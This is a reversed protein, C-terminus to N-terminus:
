KVFIGAELTAEIFAWYSPGPDDGEMAAKCLGSAIKHKDSREAPWDLLLVNRAQAPTRVIVQEGGLSIIVPNDWTHIADLM